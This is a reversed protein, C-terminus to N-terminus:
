RDSKLGAEERQLYALTLTRVNDAVWAAMAQEERLTEELMAKARTDGFHEALAILSTYAAIEYNEFALNAFTNKLIEDGAVSHGLAAMNGMVMGGIDKVASRSEGHSELIQELRKIQQETERLHQTLRQSVEPYNKIRDIQRGILQTAETEVAHANRLGVFYVSEKARSHQDTSAHATAM